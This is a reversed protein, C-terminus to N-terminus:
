IRKGPSLPRSTVENRTAAMTMLERRVGEPKLWGYGACALTQLLHKFDRDNWCPRGSRTLARTIETQTPQHGTPLKAAYPTNLTLFNTLHARAGEDWDVSERAEFDWDLEWLCLTYDCWSGSLVWRNDRSLCTSYVGGSHGDLIRLCQGTSIDWLRLTEDESGSLVFRNDGSLCISAVWRNHGVFTRLCKGSFVDWLQLTHDDLGAIIFSKDSSICISTVRGTRTEFARLCQGSAVEWLRLSPVGEYSGGPQDQGGTVAWLNDASLCVASIEGTYGEVIRLCQGGEANWLRITKDKSISLLLGNDASICAALVEEAHGEFVCLAQSKDVDWLRLTKDSSTSVVYRNDSSLCASTVWGAHGKFTRLCEGTTTSIITIENKQETKSNLNGSLAWQNDSSLSSIWGSQQEFTRLKWATRFGKRYNYLGAQNWAEVSQEVAEYGPVLRAERAYKLAECWRNASLATRALALCNNFLTEANAAVQASVVHCLLLPGEFSFTRQETFVSVDLLRLSNNKSGSLVWRNDSSLCIDGGEYGKFTHLCRGTAVNWIRLTKDDVGAIAYSSGSLVWQNDSTLRVSEVGATHGEFTRLCRGSAFDWIRVKKDYSGSIILQNDASLCVSRVGDTHGEFIRVCRGSGIDWLRMTKDGSGSLAFRNDSTLCISSVSEEHGDFIRVCQGTAVDWLRLTTDGGGSLALRNDSTLCLTSVWKGHGKFIRLCEGSNVDWLRLTVGSGSLVRRQDSTFCVANIGSQGEKFVRLCQGTIVDWLRLTHDSSGSLACRNDSSLCVSWVRGTENESLSLNRSPKSTALLRAAKLADTVEPKEELEAALGLWRVSEERDSRELHVLGLLYAPKWANPQARQLVELEALLKGDTYRCSRWLFIGRNYIAEPHEPQRRLIENFVKEAEDKMGLDLLSVARNNLSDGLVEAPKPEQRSYESGIVQGYVEELAKVVEIMEQPRDAQDRQFCHRLTEVLGDPMKPLVAEGSEFGIFEEFAEAAAQGGFPCPPEGLFLEFVSVAWSWLDTRRTLRTLNAPNAGSRSQAAIDAQEPSCYAPTMGGYSALVSQGFPIVTEGATARAKALGFDTVRVAGDASMLVNAPKVDQHILGHDHAYHLGWAFQIAIDLIRELARKQGGEYLRRSRVWDALSGGDIFEAFIRPIAGLRRVYYCSVTHPHLGLNVWTEAEREFNEIQKSSEFFEPRPSKVALDINWKRHYVRYVLGMGGGTFVQKVEYLDLIVDDVEWIAPIKEQTTYNM